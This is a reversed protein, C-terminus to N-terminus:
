KIRIRINRSIVGICIRIRSIVRIRIRIWIRAELYLSLCKFFRECLSMNWVNQSTMQLTTRIWIRSRIRIRIWLLPSSYRSVFILSWFQIFVIQKLVVCCLRLSAPGMFFEEFFFHRGSFTQQIRKLQAPSTSLWPTIM